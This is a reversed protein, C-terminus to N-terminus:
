GVEPCTVQGDTGYGLFAQVCRRQQSRGGPEDGVEQASPIPGAVFVPRVDDGLDVADVVAQRYQAGAKDM